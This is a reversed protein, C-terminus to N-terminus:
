NSITADMWGTNFFHNFFSFLLYFVLYHFNAFPGYNFHANM